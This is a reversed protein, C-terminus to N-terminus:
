MKGAKEEGVNRTGKARRGGVFAWSLLDTDLQVAEWHVGSWSDDDGLSDKGFRRFVEGRLPLCSLFRLWVPWPSPPRREVTSGTPTKWYGACLGGARSGRLDWQRSLFPNGRMVIM